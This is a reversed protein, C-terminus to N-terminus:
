GAGNQQPARARAAVLMAEALAISASKVRKVELQASIVQCPVGGFSQKFQSIGINRPNEFDLSGLEFYRCGRERADLIATWLALHGAGPLPAPKRGFGIWYYASDNAFITVAVAAPAGDVRVVHAAAHGPSIFDDWITAMQAGSYALAGLTQVNIDRCEMWERRDVLRVATAGAAVAKNISQRCGSRRAAALQEVPESLDLLLGVGPRPKYGYHLLPSYGFRVVAPQGGIVTPHTILVRDAHQAGARARVADLLNEIVRVEAKGQLQPSVLPGAPFLAGSVLDRVPVMRLARQRALFLPLLGCIKRGERAILSVNATGTVAALRFQASLHGYSSLPHSTVFADWEPTLEPTFDVIEM